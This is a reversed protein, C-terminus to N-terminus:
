QKIVEIVGQKLLLDNLEKIIKIYIERESIWRSLDSNLGEVAGKEKLLKDRLSVLKGKLNEIATYFLEDKMERELRGFMNKYIAMIGPGLKIEEAPKIIENGFIFDPESNGSLVELTATNWSNWHLYPLKGCVDVLMNYRGYSDDKKAWYLGPKTPTNKNIEKRKKKPKEM